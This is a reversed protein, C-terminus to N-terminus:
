GRARGTVMARLAGDVWGPVAPGGFSITGAPRPHSRLGFWEADAVLEAGSLAGADPSCLLYGAVESVVGRTSEPAAEVGIVFADVRDSTAGHAARALQAAAQARSRGGATTADVVTV